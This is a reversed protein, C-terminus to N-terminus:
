IEYWANSSVALTTGAGAQQGTVLMTAGQDLVYLVEFKTGTSSAPLVTLLTGNSTITAGLYCLTISATTSGSRLNLAATTSGAVNITPNLYFRVLVPNNNTVMTRNFIFLSKGSGDPNKIVIMPTESTDTLSTGTAPLVFSNGLYTQKGNLDLISDMPLQTQTLPASM